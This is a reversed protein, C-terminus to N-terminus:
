GADHVYLWQWHSESLCRCFSPVPNALYSQALFLAFSGFLRQHTHHTLPVAGCILSSDRGHEDAFLAETLPTVVCKVTDM